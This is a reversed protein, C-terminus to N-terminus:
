GFSNIQRMKTPRSKVVDKRTSCFGTVPLLIYKHSFYFDKIREDRKM